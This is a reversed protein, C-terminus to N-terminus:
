NKVEQEKWELYCATRVLMKIETYSMEYTKIIVWKKAFENAFNQVQKLGWEENSGGAVDESKDKLYCFIKELQYNCMQHTKKPRVSIISLIDYMKRYNLNDICDCISPVISYLVNKFISVNKENEKITCECLLYDILDQVEYTDEFRSELISIANKLTQVADDTREIRVQKWEDNQLLVEDNAWETLETLYQYRKKVYGKLDDFSFYIDKLGELNKNSYIRIGIPNEVADVFSSPSIVWPSCQIEGNDMFIRQKRNAKSTEFPHAFALSRYYEFFVDDTPCTDETFIKETYGSVNCFYIKDETCPPKKSFVNEYLKYIGDKLICAYVLFYVLKEESKPVKHFSTLVKIASDIRDMVACTLNYRHKHKESNTFISSSNIAKRFNDILVSDLFCEVGDSFDDQM